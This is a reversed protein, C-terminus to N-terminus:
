KASVVLSLGNRGVVSVVMGASLAGSDDSTQRAQWTEGRVSVRGHLSDDFGCVVTAKEAPIESDVAKEGPGIHVKTPAAKEMLAAIALDAAFTSVVAIAVREAIGWDTLHGALLFIPLGIIVSTPLIVAWWTMSYRKM